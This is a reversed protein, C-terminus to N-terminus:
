LCPVVRPLHRTEGELWGPASFVSSTIGDFCLTPYGLYCRCVVDDPNLPTAPGYDELLDDPSVGAPRPFLHCLSKLTDEIADAIGLSGALNAVKAFQQNHILRAARRAARATKSRQASPCAHAQVKARLDVENLLGRRWLELRASVAINVSSSSAGPTQPCLILTPFLFLAEMAADRFLTGRPFHAREVLDAIAPNSQEQTPALLVVAHKAGSTRM